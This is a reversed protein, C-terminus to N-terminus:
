PRGRAALAKELTGVVSLALRQYGEPTFHVNHPLQLAPDAAIIAHLDDVQVGLQRMVRLAVENYKLEDDKVRGSSADPVPTTTAWILTAGTKKLRAVIQRLNAEYEPLLAVQKGKDPTVYNGEADLYKLDHLGFNFHIVDWKSNGLWADLHTLGFATQASNELPRLLNAKGKLLERVPLTYGISISDGILLVRPLGPTESVPRLAPDPPAPALEFRKETVSEVKPRTYLVPFYQGRAWLEYLDRYHPDNVDGSQGPTNIGLTDDWNETDAIIKFSGGSTQNDGGGTATVTYSDGGRPHTGVNFRAKDEASLTASLPHIITAHHFAGLNWKSPDPGFRRTLTAIAKELTTALLADRGALPNDGFRGDPAYLWAIIRSLPPTGIADRAAAPVVLSRVDVLLQRQFIEYIGAEVSDADLHFNWHLLRTRAQAAADTSLKIERLLPVIRRAPISLNNNQLEVMDALTFRRGSSLFESVSEARFPDAWKYHLADKYPWGAPIQYENSTNYFGKAPNFIGPLAKPALYGSWEYRGDGPVPVLGSFNPRQPAIGVAQYGINGQRDAWIMNEAPLRSYACADQFEAWTRAQDMRLSALYPANGVELWAARIAYAKHHQKDEFVVPGHRTYKLDVSSPQEGKVPITERIVRMAEWSGQYRYQDANAPNTDYVYLDENDTGFITLGWAGFENHGISLGPLSPEGGGIVNWGPAVLHAWYRLSPTQQTRHPDNMMLPYGSSTLQPGVIWNNSGIDEQRQSLDLALDTSPAAAGFRLPAKFARYLDLIEKSLLTQDIAPDLTLDPNGPQFYELDKVKEVGVARIALAMNLEQEVNSILANFRSIVVAPTWAGPKLNLLRFDPTLLAPNATTEAIRANIGQVFATVIAEGHPHYWNLEQKLDGRFRFLRNGIDRKLESRGSIEAMTGTAQRRWLELQFLRDRAVNYGQAFFLDHENQAYIHAVGWKDKLIEVPQTLGPLTLKETPPTAPFALAPLLLALALTAPKM